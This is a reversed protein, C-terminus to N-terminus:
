SSNEMGREDHSEKLANQKAWAQEIEIVKRHIIIHM